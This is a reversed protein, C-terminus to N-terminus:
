KRKQLIRSYNIVRYPNITYSYLNDSTIINQGLPVDTIQTNSILNLAIIDNFDYTEKIPLTKIDFDKINSLFQLLRDQTITLKGKQTLREYITTNNLSQIHKTYLYIEDFSLEDIYENIIKKKITEISDDLYIRQNTFIVEIKQKTIIALESKSFVDKFIENEPEDLFLKNVTDDYTDGFFVTIKDIVGIGKQQYIKIVEGM